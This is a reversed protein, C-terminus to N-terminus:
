RNPAPTFGAAVLTEAVAEDVTLAEGDAWARNFAPEGLAHRAPTLWADRERLISPWGHAGVLRQLRSTAAALRVARDLAGEDATLAALTYLPNTMAARDGVAGFAILAEAALAGARAADGRARAVRSLGTLVNGEMRRDGIRRTLALSQENLSWARDFESEGELAILALHHLAMAAIFSNGTEQALALGEELAPRARAFDGQVRAVFGLVSLSEALRNRDDCRRAVAVGEEAHARALPYDGRQLALIAVGELLEIRIPALGPPVPLALVAALLGLGESTYGRNYWFAWLSAALHGGV